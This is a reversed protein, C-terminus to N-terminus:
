AARPDCDLSTLVPRSLATCTYAIFSADGPEVNRDDIRDCMVALCLIRMVRRVTKNVAHLWGAGM